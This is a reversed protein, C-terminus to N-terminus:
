YDSDDNEIPPIDGAPLPTADAFPAATGVAVIRVGGRYHSRGLPERKLEKGDRYVVRFTNISHGGSGKEIVRRKGEPLSPDRQIKEGVAWSRRDSSEIKVSLGPDKMGLVRFTIKGTEVQANIAIPVDLTNTFGLDIRNYDVAADRGIPVYPVPMSHNQRKTIKLNAFLAANYLTTSVQCIGGGIDIDHKGDKYVGAEKFGAERTRRGVVGNFSFSEGPALVLGDIKRAALRINTSRSAKGESFRTSFESVVETIKSLLEDPVKKDDLKLPLEAPAQERFAVRAADYIRTTDLRFGAVEPTREIVGNRFVVRAPKREPIHKEVFQEIPKTDISAPKFVLDYRPREASGKVARQISDLLSEFDVQAITAADDISLGLRSAREEYVEGGPLEMQLVRGKEQEWWQRVRFAAQEATLGEIDIEGVRTGPAAKPEYQSAMLTFGVAVTGSLVGLWVLVRKM